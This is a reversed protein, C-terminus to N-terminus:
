LIKLLSHFSCFIYQGASWTPAEEEGGEIQQDGGFGPGQMFLIVKM